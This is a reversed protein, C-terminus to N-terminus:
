AEESMLGMFEAMTANGDSSIGQRAFVKLLTLYLIRMDLALSWHDVYWVDFEFKRDWSLANRGNVQAWGTVGPTVEHRRAQDTSYRELYQVLLPRPGVLSMDGRLVNWLSPLEDVSLSRLLKGLRTLRMEDSEVGQGREAVAMTRFKLLEFIEGGLGPRAQRFFVPSGMSVRIAVATSAIAPALLLLGTAAGAVDIARKLRQTPKPLMTQEEHNSHNIDTIKIPCWPITRLSSM